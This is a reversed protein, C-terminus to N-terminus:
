ELTPDPGLNMEDALYHVKGQSFPDTIMDTEVKVERM